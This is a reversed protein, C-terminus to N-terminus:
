EARWVFAMPLEKEGAIVLRFVVVGKVGTAVASRGDEEVTIACADKAVDPRVDEALVRSSPERSLDADDALRAAPGGAGGSAVTM